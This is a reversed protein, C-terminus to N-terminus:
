EETWKVDVTYRRADDVVHELDKLRKQLESLDVHIGVKVDTVKVHPEALSALVERAYREARERMDTFDAKMYSTDQVRQNDAYAQQVQQIALRADEESLNTAAAIQRIADVQIDNDWEYAWRPYHARQEAISLTNIAAGVKQQVMTTFQQKLEDNIQKQKQQQKDYVLKFFLHERRTLGTFIRYM